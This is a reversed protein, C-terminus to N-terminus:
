PELPSLQTAPDKTPACAPLAGRPRSADSRLEHAAAHAVGEGQGVWQVAARKRHATVRDAALVQM